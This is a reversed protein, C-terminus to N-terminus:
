GQPLYMGPMEINFHNMITKLAVGMVDIKDEVSAFRKDMKEELAGIRKGMAAMKKDMAGMREELAGIRKDMATVKKGLSVVKKDTAEVKRDLSVVKKDIAEVKKDPIVVKKDVDALLGNNQIVCKILPNISSEATLEESVPTIKQLRHMVFEKLNNWSGFFTAQSYVSHRLELDLVMWNTEQEFMEMRVNVYDM